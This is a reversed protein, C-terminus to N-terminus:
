VPVFFGAYPSPTKQYLLYDTLTSHMTRWAVQVSGSCFVTLNILPLPRHAGEM